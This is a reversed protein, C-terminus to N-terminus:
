KQRIKRSFEPDEVSLDMTHDLKYKQRTGELNGENPILGLTFALEDSYGPFLMKYDFLPINRNAIENIHKAINNTCNNTLTNYFEPKEHIQNVRTLMSLFLKRANDKDSLVGPYLYVDEKRNFVRNGIMDREDGVVYLLEYQKFLGKLASYKEGVEKRAEISISVYDGNKFGFSLFTHAIGEFESFHSVVFWVSEIEDLNFAQDYYEVIEQDSREGRMNRINHVTVLNEEIEAYPLRAHDDAWIRNHSPQICCFIVIVLIIFLLLGSFIWHKTKM